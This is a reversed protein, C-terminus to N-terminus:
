ILENHIFKDVLVKFLPYPMLKNLADNDNGITNKINLYYIRLAKDKLRFSSDKKNRLIKVLTNINERNYKM